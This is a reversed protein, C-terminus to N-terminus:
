RFHSILVADTVYQGSSYAIQKGDLSVAFAWIHRSNPFTGIKRAPAVPASIPGVPQAWLSTTENKETLYLIDHGDKTWQLKSGGDGTWAIDPSVDYLKRFEGSQLDIVAIQPPKSSDLRYFGAVTTEDASIQAQQIVHKSITSPTGGDISVRMLAGEGSGDTYVVFKGDPSCAPLVDLQGSTIQKPNGGDMDERWISIHHSSDQAGFVFHKGDGCVSPWESLAGSTPVDRLDSGALGTIAFHITGSRYYGFLIKDPGAWSIGALGDARDIGSTVQRPQSFSDVGGTSTVWITGALGVQVTALNSGDSTITAGNYFNLDNTIRRADGDPYGLEWLQANVTVQDVGAAFVVASGDPLWAFQRPFDWARSGIHQIEGSDVSVTEISYNSYNGDPTEAIVIRKGDPSWAPGEISFYAPKKVTALAKANASDAIFLGSAKAEDRVFAFRKGDPSFSIPSDVKTMIQKPAGGLSAVQFLTDIGDPEVEKVFYLYNGDLSFTLGVIEGPTGALVKATSGTALQKVWIGHGGNDDQVYALWKGDPSIAASHINGTSTVPTITMQAFSTPQHRGRSLLGFGWLVGLGIVVAVGLGGILWYAAATKRAIPVPLTVAPPAPTVHAAPQVATWGSENSAVPRSFGSSIPGTRGSDPSPTPAGPFSQAAAAGSVHGAFGSAGGLDRRLRKLDGRLEAATQCRLERDKELAKGIIEELKAPLTPNLISPAVPNRNLIADFIVASTGGSFASQGTAMEYLVAGLSFLDTRADLTEGRAQEPSMYAVTGLASGPSTLLLNDTTPLTSAGTAGIAEALRPSATQKALGFDLIKAQGRTTIFINATKIDRHLIGRSHAADLADAIQMGFELVLDTPLARGGIRERLTQGELLEMVLFPQGQHEGVDYITCIGPHNLSSAARAERQFRELSAADTALQQSLFKIAVQRGLRTDEARFVQGMGGSGLTDVIRYHSITQGVM